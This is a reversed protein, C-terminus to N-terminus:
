LTLLLMTGHYYIQRGPPVLAMDVSSMKYCQCHACPAIVAEVFKHLQPNYFTLSMTDSLRVQGVHSLMHHYWKVAHKLLERPLYICWPKNHAKQYCWLSLKQIYQNPKQAHLQQLQADGPQAQTINAYTLIFPINELPPLHIFCDILNNELALSQFSDLSKYLQYSDTQYIDQKDESHLIPQNHVLDDNLVEPM